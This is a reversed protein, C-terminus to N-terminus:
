PKGGKGTSKSGAGKAGTGTGGAGSTGGGGVSRSGMGSMIDLLDRIGEPTNIKNSFADPNRITLPDLVRTISAEPPTFGAWSTGPGRSLTVRVSVQKLRDLTLPSQIPQSSGGGEPARAPVADHLRIPAEEITWRYQFQEYDLPLTPSPMHKSDDLYLLVLRNALEVAGLREQERASSNLVFGVATFIGATVVALMVVAGVCELLTLGRRVPGRFIRDIRAVGRKIDRRPDL